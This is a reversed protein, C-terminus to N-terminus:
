YWFHRELFGRGCKREVLLISIIAANGSTVLFIPVFDGLAKQM